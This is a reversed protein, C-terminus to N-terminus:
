PRPIPPLRRAIHGLQRTWHAASRFFGTSMPEDADIVRSRLKWSSLGKVIIEFRSVVESMAPRKRPDDNVMDSVLERMFEFGRKRKVLDEWGDLFNRRIANGLCYVDVPFPDCPSPHPVLFEPVTKDGGWPPAERHPADEPRRIMSLGFDVLHYKVPKRTRSIPKSTTGSFDRKMWPHSPHPPSDYLSLTDAMINDYKCDGHAVDNEHMFQLGEFVQRFFEVAEGVTEFPTFNTSFLLPMVIFAIDSGEPPRVVDLIPVCHNKPHSALQESSFKQGVAIEEPFTALDVQKLIVLSGDARTADLVQGHEISIGDECTLWDKASSRLWSAVWDPRYRERLTYGHDKLFNYHNRWFLETESLGGNALLNPDGGDLLSLFTASSKHAPTSSEM